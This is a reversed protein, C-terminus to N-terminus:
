AGRNSEERSCRLINQIVSDSANMHPPKLHALDAGAKQKEDYYRQFSGRSLLTVKVPKSEVEGIAERYLPSMALLQEHLLHELVEAKTEKKLEIYIRLAPWDGEYEKRASWEEYSVNTNDLAQWITREDLRIISYLDILDDARAHFMFQPLKIGTEKEELSIIKLLDGLRYRLFPMGYFNTIVLEYIKGAELEDLRVTAPQYGRNERAKLWEAEPIFEFFNLYPHFIFGKHVWSQTAVTGAETSGYVEHPVRGWFYELKKRYISADTGACALGKIPWLDKPLM